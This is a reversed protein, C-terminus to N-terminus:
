EKIAYELLVEIPIIELTAEHTAELIVPCAFGNDYAQKWRPACVCWRDGPKLGPFGYDPIPTSLDNGTEQSFELFDESVLCCVTHVGLDEDCTDCYGNRFYGTVPDKGCSELNGGLVNKPYSM